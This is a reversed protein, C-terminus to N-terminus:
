GYALDLRICIYKHAFPRRYFINLKYGPALGNKQVCSCIKFKDIKGNISNYRYNQTKPCIQHMYSHPTHHRIM